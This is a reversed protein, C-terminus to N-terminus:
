FQFQQNSDDGLLAHFGQRGSAACPNLELFPPGDESNNLRERHDAPLGVYTPMFLDSKVRVLFFAPTTQHITQWM